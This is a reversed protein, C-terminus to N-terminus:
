QGGTGPGPLYNGPSESGRIQQTQAEIDRVVRSVDQRAGVEVEALLHDRAEDRTLQGIRELEQM